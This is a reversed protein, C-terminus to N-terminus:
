KAEWVTRLLKANSFDEGNINVNGTFGGIFGLKKCQDDYVNAAMDNGCASQDFLYVKKQQFEYEKVVAKNCSEKSFEDIKAKLCDNMNENLKPHCFTVRSLLFFLAFSKFLNHTSM